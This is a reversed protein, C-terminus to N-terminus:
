KMVPCTGPVACKSTAPLTQSTVMETAAGPGSALLPRVQYRYETKPKLGSDGFSLGSATAVGQPEAQGPGARLVEYKVVNPVATWALAIAKDSVDNVVLRQPGATPAPAPGTGSTLVDVMKKIAAIQPAGKTLYRPDFMPDKDLYGWWDWCAAPNTIGAFPEIGNSPTTQPYLVIIHNTDAWENYGAHRVFDEGINDFSQLCGHLAVHVSCAAGTACDTPVFIFAKQGMSLEAPKAPATHTDQDFELLTGALTGRNAPNLAGYVHQLIVGAQDYDCDDIFEGSSAPCAGAGSWPLTVQAHGAGISTQYFLNGDNEGLRKDYIASLWNTVPRHVVKDNYGNFLYIKQNAINAPNDILGKAALQDAVNYLSHVDAEPEGEM